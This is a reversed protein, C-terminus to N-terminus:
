VGGDLAPVCVTDATLTASVVTEADALTAM